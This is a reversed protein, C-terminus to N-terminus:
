ELGLYTKRFAMLEAATVEQLDPVNEGVFDQLTEAPGNALLAEFEGLKEEPMHKLITMNIRDELRDVLDAKLQEFVEPDVSEFKKEELLKQAFTQLMEDVPSTEM